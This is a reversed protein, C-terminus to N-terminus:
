PLTIKYFYINLKSKVGFYTFCHKHRVYVTLYYGLTKRIVIKKTKFVYVDYSMTYYMTRVSNKLYIFYNFFYYYKLANFNLYVKDICKSLM